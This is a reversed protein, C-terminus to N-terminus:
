ETEEIYKEEDVNITEINGLSGYQYIQDLMEIITRIKTRLLVGEKIAANILGEHNQTLKWDYAEEHYSIIKEMVEHIEESTLPSLERAKVIMDLVSKMPEEQGPHIESLYEYENKKEIVDERYSSTFAFLTFVSIMAPPPMLFDAMAAYAKLRSKKSLSGLMEAEDFLIVWGNYGLEHFLHSMFILYDTTHINKKFSENLRCTEKYLKKYDKKLENITIFDGTLDCELKYKMDDDTENKLCKLVFWLKNCELDSAATMLLRSYFDTDPIREEVEQMFGPEERGPLYTNAMIKQYIVPLNQMPTERGLPLMSVVMNNEQAMAFVSNLLHTKGEGYRGTIIMGSSRADTKLADLHDRMVKMIKPRAESFTQGVLRSPVGSRLAEIIQRAKMDSMRNM